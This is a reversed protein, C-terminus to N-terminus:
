SIAQDSIRPGSYPVIEPLGTSVRNSLGTTSAIGQLGNNLELLDEPALIEQDNV